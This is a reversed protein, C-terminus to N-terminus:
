AGPCQSAEASALMWPRCSGVAVAGVLASVRLGVLGIDCPTRSAAPGRRGYQQSRRLTSAWVLGAADRQAADGRICRKMDCVTSLPCLAALTLMSPLVITRHLDEHHLIVEVEHFVDEVSELRLSDDGLVDAGGRVRVERQALEAEIDGDDVHSESGPRVTEAEAPVHTCGAVSDGDQHEGREIGDGVTNSAEGGARVVVKGLREREVLQDSADACEPPAVEGM